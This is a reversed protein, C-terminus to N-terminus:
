LVSRNSSGALDSLQPPATEGFVPSAVRAIIQQVGAALSHERPLHPM